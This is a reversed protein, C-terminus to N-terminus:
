YQWNPCWTAMDFYQWLVINYYYIISFHWLHFLSPPCYILLLLKNFANPWLVGFVVSVFIVAAVVVNCDYQLFTNDHPLCVYFVLVYKYLFQLKKKTKLEIKFSVSTGLFEVCNLWFASKYCCVLARDTRLLLQTQIDARNHMMWKVPTDGYGTLCLCPAWLVFTPSSTDRACLSVEMKTYFLWWIKASTNIVDDESVNCKKSSMFTGTVVFFYNVTKPISIIIFVNLKQQVVM